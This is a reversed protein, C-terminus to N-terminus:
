QEEKLEWVSVRRGSVPCIKDENNVILDKKKLESLRRWVQANKLNASRAIDRFSGKKICRLAGLIKRHLKLKDPKVSEHAEISNQNM